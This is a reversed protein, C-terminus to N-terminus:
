VGSDDLEAYTAGVVEDAAAYVGGAEEETYVGGAEVSTASEETSTAAGDEVSSGTVEDGMYVGEVRGEPPTELRQFGAACDVLGAM